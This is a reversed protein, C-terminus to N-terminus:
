RGFTLSVQFLGSDIGPNEQATWDNSIHHYRYEARLSKTPTRYLEVGAGLDFTFNFNGSQAVPITQSSYMYGGHGVLFPQVKHRTWFNWQFGIPSFAEGASWRRSCTAVFTYSPGGGPISGSGSSSHCATTTPTSLTETLTLPPNTYVFTSTTIQLPDSELAVPILEGSYQWNVYRNFLLRRDYLFGINVLRRNEAVGLLMHSSDNSYAGFFGFTNRRALVPAEQITQARGSLTGLMLTLCSVLFFSLFDFKRAVLSNRQLHVGKPSRVEDLESEKADSTSQPSISGNPLREIV